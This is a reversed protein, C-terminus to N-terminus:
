WSSGPLSSDEGPIRFGSGPIQRKRNRKRKTKRKGLYMHMYYDMAQPSGKIEIEGNRKILVKVEEKQMSM